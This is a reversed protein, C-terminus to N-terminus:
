SIELNWSPVYIYLKTCLSSGGGRIFKNVCVRIDMPMFHPLAMIWMNFVSLVFVYGFCKM